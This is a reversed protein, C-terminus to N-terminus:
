CSAWRKSHTVQPAMGAAPTELPRMHHMGAPWGTDESSCAISHHDLQEEAMTRIDTGQVGPPEVRLVPCSVLTM